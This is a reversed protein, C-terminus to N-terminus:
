TEIVNLLEIYKGQSVIRKLFNAVVEIRTSEMDELYNVKRNFHLPLNRSQLVRQILVVMDKFRAALDSQRDWDASPNEEVMLFLINKYFYSPFLGLQSHHQKVLKMIRLLTNKRPHNYHFKRLLELEHSSYSLRWYRSIPAMTSKVYPKAVLDFESNGLDAAKLCVVIDISVREGRWKVNLTVAPGSTSRTIEVPGGQFTLRPNGTLARDITSKIVNLAKYTSLYGADDLLNAPGGKVFKWAANGSSEVESGFVKRGYERTIPLKIFFQIDFDSKGPLATFEYTSGMYSIDSMYGKLTPLIFAEGVHQVLAPKASEDPTLQASLYRHEIQGLKKALESDSSSIRSLM